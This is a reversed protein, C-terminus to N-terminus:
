VGWTWGRTWRDALGSTGGIACDAWGRRKWGLLGTQGVLRGHRKRGWDGLGGTRGEVGGSSQRTLAEEVEMRGDARDAIRERRTWWMREAQM